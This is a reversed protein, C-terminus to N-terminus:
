IPTWVTQPTQEMVTYDLTGGSTGSFQFGTVTKTAPIPQGPLTQYEADYHTWSIIYNASRMEQAAPFVISQPDTTIVVRGSIIRGSGSVTEPVVATSGIVVWNISTGDEAPMLVMSSAFKEVGVEISRRNAGETKWGYVMPTYDGTADSTTTFLVGFSATVGTKSVNEVFGSITVMEPM